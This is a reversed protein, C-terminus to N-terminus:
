LVLRLRWQPKFKGTKSGTMKQVEDVPTKELQELKRGEKM